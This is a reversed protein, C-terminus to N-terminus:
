LLSSCNYRLDNQLHINMNSNITPWPDDYFLTGILIYNISQNIPKILWLKFSHPPCPLYGAVTQGYHAPLSKPLSFSPLTPPVTVTYHKSIIRLSIPLWHLLTLVPYIHDLKQKQHHGQCSKMHRREKGYRKQPVNM